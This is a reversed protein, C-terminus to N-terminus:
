LYYNQRKNLLQLNLILLEARISNSFIVLSNMVMAHPYIETIQSHLGSPGMGMLLYHAMTMAVIHVFGLEYLITKIKRM